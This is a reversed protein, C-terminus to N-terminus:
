DERASLEAPQPSRRLPAKWLAPPAIVEAPGPTFVDGASVIGNSPDYIVLADDDSWVADPGIGALTFQVWAADGDPHETRNRYRYMRDGERQFPDLPLRPAYAVPTTLAALAGPRTPPYDGTELQYDLLARSLARHHVWVEAVRSRLASERYQEWALGLALGILVVASLIRPNM